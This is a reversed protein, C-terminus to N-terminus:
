FHHSGANRVEEELEEPSQNFYCVGFKGLLEIFTQKSVEVMEAGQGATIIGNEYLHAALIMQMEWDKLIVDEPIQLTVAKMNM